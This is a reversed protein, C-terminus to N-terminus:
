NLSPQKFELPNVQQMTEVSFPQDAFYQRYLNCRLRVENGELKILGLSYLKFLITNDLRVPQSSAAVQIFASLLEPYHQLHWWQGRLHDRFLGVETPAEALLKKLSVDGRSLHYFALRVLYPHGGLMAMLDEVQASQWALGHRRALELVQAPEFEPLEIPLGVNFPSQNTNLPIYVETAHVVVLRLNKWIERNKAEEHWARLLGFFDSAIDPYTFVRDVEDLGLALPQGIQPLLYEEFYATCNYKSGFIDDWYDQLKNELGLRRAVSACLWRLFKELDTFVKADALQLSLPVTHYGSQSARYLIRAMLSTKGMQRPAKIRILAGPQLIAEGCRTEIPPREIYFASALNVQGEPLEPEAVPLPPANPDPLLPPVTPLTGGTTPQRTNELPTSALLDLVDQILLPTDQPSQWFRQQLRHLYGRLEYNLPAELPFNVRIPLIIPRHDAREEQLQRIRRVEELVMESSASQASLLLLFYDCGKLEADIRQAWGEGLQMSQESMFPQHGAATLANFFQRALDIEPSQSHHSIFIRASQSPSQGSSGGASPPFSGSRPLQPHTPPITPTAGSPSNGYPEAPLDLPLDSEPKGRLETIPKRLFQGFRQLLSPPQHLSQLAQLVETASQYREQFQYRVMRSLILGLGESIDAQWIWRGQSDQQLQTPPRGTLAQIAIIGLAYLDSNPQPRGQAQEPPMYGPTGIAITGGDGVLTGSALSVRMEKVAGFDILVLHRDPQRRILNDPKLDRHIVGCSHVFELISLVDQLMRLVQEETWPQGVGLESRLVYGPIYDQVLYFEAAEEFYALLRPIQNHHGLRELTQAERAFLNRAIPLFQPDPSAPKLHKVVCQAQAPRHLDEALYTQGFNGAGLVNLIRYRGGLLRGIM